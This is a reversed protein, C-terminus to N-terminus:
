QNCAVSVSYAEYSGTRLNRAVATVSDGHTWLATIPGPFDAPASVQVPDRDPIEYARLSDTSTDDGANTVLVQTGAGCPSKVAAIDSGWDATTSAPIVRENVGDNLHVRGDAGTLMLLSYNQRPLSALTYFPGSAKSVATFLEGTFYNRGSNFLATKTGLPWPDDGDGCSVGIGSSASVNCVTGPLYADALHDKAPVLMGRLDRPFNHSRTIALSQDRQWKGNNLSFTSIANADLLGMRNNDVYADLIQIPQSWLLAKRITMSPGSHPASPAETRPVSVMEVQTQNGQKIEAVWLYGQLNESLTVHVDANANSNSGIRVGSTRLQAEITHQIDGVESKTLSSSNSLTFTIAGPGTAGAIAKALETAPQTFNGAFASPALCLVISVLLFLILAIGDDREWRKRGPSFAATLGTMRFLANYHSRKM